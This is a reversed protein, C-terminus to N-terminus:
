PLLSPALLRRQGHEIACFPERHPSSPLPTGRLNLLGSAAKRSCCRPQTSRQMQAPHASDPPERKYAAMAATQTHGGFLWNRPQRTFGLRGAAHVNRCCKELASCVFGVWPAWQVVISAVVAGMRM